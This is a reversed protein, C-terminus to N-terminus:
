NKNLSNSWLSVQNRGKSKANYLAIDAQDILKTPSEAEFQISTVGFSCTVSIGDFQSSEIKQRITEAIILAKELSVDPLIICFEEGGFRAVIDNKRVAKQLTEAVGRLVTDGATHGHTDNVAKFYDIDTMIVFYNRKKLQALDSFDDNMHDILFRRNYCNTLPDRAALYDLKKNLRRSDIFRRYIFFVMFLCIASLSALAINSYKNKTLELQSIQSAQNVIEIENNKKELELQDLRAIERLSELEMEMKHSALTAKARILETQERETNIIKSLELEKEAYSLSKSYNNQLKEAQRLSRYASLKENKINSEDSLKLSQELYTIAKNTDINILIRGLLALAKIQDKKKNIEVALSLARDYYFIAKDENGSAQYVKGIIRATTSSKLKDNKDQYIRYAKLAAEEASKYEGTNLDIVAIERLAAARTTPTVKEKPLDITLQYFSKAQPFQRLRTYILGIDKSTEAIDNIKNKEKYISHAESMHELSKEYRGLYRYIIGAASLSQALAIPDALQRHLELSRISYDLAVVYNRRYREQTALNRLSTAMSKKNNLDTYASLSNKYFYIAEKSNKLRTYTQAIRQNTLALRKKVEDDNETLYPLAKKYESIADKYKKQKYEKEGKLIQVVAIALGDEYQLAIPLLKDLLIEAQNYQKQYIYIGAYDVSSMVENRHDNIAKYIISAQLFHFKSQEIDKINKALKGLLTHVEASLRPNNSEESIRLAQNALKISKQIDNHKIAKAKQYLALGSSPLENSQNSFSQNKEEQALASPCLFM